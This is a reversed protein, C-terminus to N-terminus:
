LKTNLLHIGIGIRVEIGTISEENYFSVLAKSIIALPKGESAHVKYRTINCVTM